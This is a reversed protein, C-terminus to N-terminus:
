SDKADTADEIRYCIRTALRKNDFEPARRVKFRGFSLRYGADLAGRWCTYKAKAPSTTMVISSASEWDTIDVRFARTVSQRKTRKVPKPQINREKLVQRMNEEHDIVAQPKPVPLEDWMAGIIRRAQRLGEVIGAWNAITQEEAPQKLWTQVHEYRAVIRLRAEALANRQQEVKEKDHDDPECSLDPGYALRGTKQIVKAVRLLSTKELGRELNDALDALHGAAEEFAALSYDAAYKKDADLKSKDSM